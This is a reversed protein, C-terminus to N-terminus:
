RTTVSKRVKGPTVGFIKKFERLFVKYNKIGNNELLVNLKDDTNRLDRYFSAIRLSLVYETFTQNTYQKFLRCLHEPTVSIISAAHSLSIEKKYNKEVFSIVPSLRNVATKSYKPIENFNSKIRYSSVMKYLLEYMLSVFKIKSGERSSTKAELMKLLISGLEGSEDKSLFQTYIYSEADPEIENLSSAPIQFLIHKVNGKLKTSHLMDSNVIALCGKQLVYTSNEINLELRGSLVYLIEIHNHWHFPSFFNTHEILDFRITFDLDFHQRNRTIIEHKYPEMDFNYMKLGYNAFSKSLFIM